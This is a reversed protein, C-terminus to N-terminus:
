EWELGMERFREPDETWTERVKVFLKLHVRREMFRELETRAAQGIAKIRTGGKGLVIAKQSEREVFIVQSIRVSGDRLEEWAETEVTSAYPLEHRLQLFLKERTTEAALLRMPLDTLQDEPYLWPSLPVRAALVGRLDDVGDGTAASIMFIDSYAGEKNLQDALALLKDRRILDIKNLALIATRRLDRLREAVGVVSQDVQRESADVLHVILDADEAGRWAASVMAQDLRRKPQFIGPTDVFLLQSQGELTIGLLRRRTTQEKPTVISLKAGVMHNLLTSKGANPAGVLAIFGCRTESPQTAPTGPAPDTM